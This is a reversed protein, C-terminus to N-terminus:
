YIKTKYCYYFFLLLLFLIVILHKLNEILNKKTKIDQNQPLATETTNENYFNANYNGTNNYSLTNNNNNNLNILNGMGALKEYPQTKYIFKDKYNNSSNSNIINKGIDEQSFGKNNKNVAGDSNNEYIGKINDYEQSFPKTDTRQFKENFFHPNRYLNYTNDM